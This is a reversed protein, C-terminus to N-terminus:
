GREDPPNAKDKPGHGGGCGGDDSKMHSQMTDNCTEMTRSM